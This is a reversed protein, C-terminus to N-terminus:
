IEVKRVEYRDNDLESFVEVPEEVFEHDWRVKVYLTM